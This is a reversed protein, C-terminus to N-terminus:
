ILINNHPIVKCFIFWLILSVLVIIINNRHDHAPNTLTHQSDVPAPKVPICTGKM